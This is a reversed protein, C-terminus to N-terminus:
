TSPGKTKIYKIPKNTYSTGPLPPPKYFMPDDDSECIMPAKTPYWDFSRTIGRAARAIEKYDHIIATM